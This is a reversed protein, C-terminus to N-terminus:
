RRSPTTTCRRTVGESTPRQDQSAPAIRPSTVHIGLGFGEGHGAGRALDFQGNVAGLTIGTAGRDNRMGMGQVAARQGVLHHLRQGPSAHQGAPGSDAEIEPTHTGAFANVVFPAAFEIIKQCHNRGLGTLTRQAQGTKREPGEDGAMGGGAQVCRAVDLAQHEDARCGATKFDSGHRRFEVGSGQDNMPLLVISNGQGTHHVPGSGLHQGHRHYGAATMKKM